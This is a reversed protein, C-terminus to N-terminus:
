TLLPILKECILGIKKIGGVISFSVLVFIIIGIYKIENTKIISSVQIMNGIIFSALVILFAYFLALYKGIGKIGELYFMPGGCYEGDIKRRNKRSLAGESFQLISGLLATIWMWFIAGPGGLAIAQGVGVINGTGFTAALSTSLSALPSIEGEGDAEFLYIFSKKINRLSYFNFRLSFFLSVLFILIFM